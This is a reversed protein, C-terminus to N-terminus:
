WSTFTSVIVSLVITFTLGYGGYFWVKDSTCVEEPEGIFYATVKNMLQVM